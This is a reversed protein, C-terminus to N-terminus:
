RRHQRGCVFALMLMCDRVSTANCLVGCFDAGPPLPPPCWERRVKGVRLQKGLRMEVTLGLMAAVKVTAAAARTVQAAQTQDLARQAQAAGM